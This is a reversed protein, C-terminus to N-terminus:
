EALSTKMEARPFNNWQSVPIAALVSEPKYEEAEHSLSLFDNQQKTEGSVM